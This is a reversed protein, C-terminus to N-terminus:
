PLFLTQKEGLTAILSDKPQQQLFQYLETTEPEVYGLRHPYAQVAYTPYLLLGLLIILGCSKLLKRYDFFQRDIWSVVPNFIVAIAIGDVLAIIMRLIHQSYRGPLHLRFLFLHALCYLLLGASFIQLLIM